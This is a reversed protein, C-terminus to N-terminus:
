HKGKEAGNGAQKDFSRMGALGLMGMLIQLTLMTDITPFSGLYGFVVQAGFRLLPEIIAAYALGIGGVWGCFPRWGAVFVSESAAEIRNIELQGQILGLEALYLKNDQEIVFQKFEQDLEKIKIQDDPKLGNIFNTIGDVTSDSLGFKSAIWSAATGAVIPSALAKLLLPLAAAIIPAM